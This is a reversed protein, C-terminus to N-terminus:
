VQADKFGKWNHRTAAEEALQVALLAPESCVDNHVSLVKQLLLMLLPADCTRVDPAKLM